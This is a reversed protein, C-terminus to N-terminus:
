CIVSTHQQQGVQAAIRQDIEKATKLAEDYLEDTVNNTQWGRLRTPQALCSLSASCV